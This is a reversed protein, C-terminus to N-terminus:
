SLDLVKGEGKTNRMIDVCKVVGSHTGPVEIEKSEELIEDL